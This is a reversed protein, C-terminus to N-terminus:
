DAAEVAAHDVIEYSHTIEATKAMMITASCYKEHSLKIAREVANPKLNHGTVTFHFNIKTFVKARKKDQAGKRYMINKFQSHGAM